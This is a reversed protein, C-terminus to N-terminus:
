GYKVYNDSGLFVREEFNSRWNPGFLGIQFASQTSPWASNWTRVLSLGSSLGPIRVDTEEIYTNGTLLSIPKSAQPTNMANCRPCDEGPAAAPACHNTNIKCIILGDVDDCDYGGYPATIAYGVVNGNAIRTNCDPGAQAAAGRCWICGIWVVVLLAVFLRKIV